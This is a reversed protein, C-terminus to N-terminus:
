TGVSAILGAREQQRQFGIIWDTTSAQRYHYLTLESPPPVLSNTGCLKRENCAGHVLVCGYTLAQPQALVKGHHGGNRTKRPHKRRTTYALAFGQPQVQIDYRDLLISDPLTTRNLKSSWHEDLIKSIVRRLAGAEAKPYRVFEDLDILATFVDNRRRAMSLCYDNALVQDVASPVLKSTNSQAELSTSLDSILPFPVHVVRGSKIYGQLIPLLSDGQRDLIYIVDFGILLHYEIWEIMRQPSHPDMGDCESCATELYFPRLCISLDKGDLAGSPRKFSPHTGNRITTSHTSDRKNEGQMGLAAEPTWSDREDIRRYRDHQEHCRNCCRSQPDTSNKTDDICGANCAVSVSDCLRSTLEIQEVGMCLQIPRTMHLDQSANKTHIAITSSMGFKNPVPLFKPLPCELWLLVNDYSKWQAPTRLKELDGSLAREGHDYHSFVCETEQLVSRINSSQLLVGWAEPGYLSSRRSENDEAYVAISVVPHGSPSSGITADFFSLHVKAEAPFPRKGQSLSAGPEVLVAEGYKPGTDIPPRCMRMKTSGLQSVPMWRPALSWKQQSESIKREVLTTNTKLLHRVWVAIDIYANPNLQRPVPVSINHSSIIQVLDRPLTTSAKCQPGGVAGGTYWFEFRSNDNLFSAPSGSMLFNSLADAAGPMSCWDENCDSQKREGDPSWLVTQVQVTKACRSSTAVALAEVPSFRQRNMPLVLDMPDHVRLVYDMQHRRALVSCREKALTNAVPGEWLMAAMSRYKSTHPLHVFDGRILKPQLTLLEEGFPDLYIVLSFGAVRQQYYVWDRISTSTWTQLSPTLPSSPAVCLAAKSRSESFSGVSDDIDRSAYVDATPGVGDTPFSPLPKLKAPSSVDCLTLSPAVVSDRGTSMTTQTLPLSLQLHVWEYTEARAREVEDMSTVNGFNPLSGEGAIDLVHSFSPLDCMLKATLYGHAGDQALVVMEVSSRHLPAFEANLAISGKRYDCRLDPIAREILEGTTEGKTHSMAAILISLQDDTTKEIEVILIHVAPAGKLLIIAERPWGDLSCAGIKSPWEGDKVDDSGDKKIGLESRAATVDHSPDITKTLCFIQVAVQFSVLTPVFLLWFRRSIIRRNDTHVRTTRKESSGSARM